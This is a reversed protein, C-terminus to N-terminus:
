KTESIFSKMYQVGETDATFLRYVLMQAEDSSSMAGLYECFAQMDIDIEIASTETKPAKEAKPKEFLVTDPQCAYEDTGMEACRQLEPDDVNISFSHTVKGTKENINTNVKIASAPLKEFFSTNRAKIGYEFLEAIEPSADIVREISQKMGMWRTSLLASAMADEYSKKEKGKASRATGVLKKEKDTLSLDGSKPRTTYTVQELGVQAIAKLWQDKSKVGGLSNWLARYVDIRELATAIIDKSLEKREKEGIVGYNLVNGEHIGENLLAERRQNGQLIEYAGAENEFVTILSQSTKGYWNQIGVLHSTKASSRKWDRTTVLEAFKVTVTKAEIATTKTKTM